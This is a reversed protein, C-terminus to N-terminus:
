CLIGTNRSKEFHFVINKRGNKLTVQIAPTEEDSVLNVVVGVERVFRPTLLYAYGPIVHTLSTCPHICHTEWQVNPEKLLVSQLRLVDM